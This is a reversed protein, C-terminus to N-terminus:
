AIDVPYKTNEHQITMSIHLINNCGYCGYEANPITGHNKLTNWWEPRDEPDIFTDLMNKAKATKVASIIRKVSDKQTIMNFRSLGTETYDNYMNKSTIQIIFIPDSPIKKNEKKLGFEHLIQTIDTM